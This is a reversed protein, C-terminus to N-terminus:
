SGLFQDLINLPIKKQDMEVVIVEVNSYSLNSKISRLLEATIETTNWNLIIISVMPNLAENKIHYQNEPM